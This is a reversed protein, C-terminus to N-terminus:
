DQDSMTAWRTGRVLLAQFMEQECAERDHGLALWYVRGQGWSRVWAVPITGDKWLATALIHNRADYSTVYMEDTVFFEPPDDDVLGSTIPHDPDSIMVQYQRYRPHGTFHGGIMARYAPCDRFSDAASHVGVFGGGNAVWDLLGAWQERTIEDVTHYFVLVDFQQLRGDAFAELDNETYTINLGEEKGLTDRISTGCGQYDHIKGGAQILVNTDTM